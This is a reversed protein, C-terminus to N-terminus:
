KLKQSGKIKAAIYGFVPRLGPKAYFKNGFHNTYLLYKCDQLAKAKCQGNNKVIKIM